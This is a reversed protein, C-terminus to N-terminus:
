MGTARLKASAQKALTQQRLARDVVIDGVYRDHHRPDPLPKGIMQNRFCRMVFDAIDSASAAARAVECLEPHPPGLVIHAFMKSGRVASNLTEAVWALEHSITPHLFAHHLPYLKEYEIVLEAAIEPPDVEEPCRGDETPYHMHATELSALAELQRTVLPYYARIAEHESQEKRLLRQAEIANDAQMKAVRM